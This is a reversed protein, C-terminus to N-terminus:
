KRESFDSARAPFLLPLDAATMLQGVVILGVSVVGNVGLLVLPPWTGLFRATLGFCVAALGAALVLRGLKLAPFDIWRWLRIAWASVGAVVALSLSTAVAAGLAGDWGSREFWPVMGLNLVLNLAGGALMLGGVLRTRDMAILVRSCCIFLLFFFSAPACWFLIEGLGRYAKAALVGLVQDGLLMLVAAGFVSLVLTFRLMGTVLERNRGSTWPRARETEGLGNMEANLAPLMLSVVNLGVMFVILSINMTLTYEAMRELGLFGTVVVRDILRFLSEGLLLPLLPVSFWLIEGLGDGKVVGKGEGTEDRSEEVNGDVVRPVWRSTWWAGVALGGTWVWLVMGAEPSRVFLAVVLLVFFWCDMVLLQTLRFRLLAGTGLLFYIRFQMWLYLAVGVGIAVASSWGFLAHEVLAGVVPVCVLGAAIGLPVFVRTLRRYLRAQEAASRGPLRRVLVEFTGLSLFIAGFNVLLLVLSVVGYTEKGLIETLLRIRLPALALQIGVYGFSLFLSEAMERSVKVRGGAMRLDALWQCGDGRGNGVTPLGFVLDREPDTGDGRGEM